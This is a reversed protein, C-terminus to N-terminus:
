ERGKGISTLWRIRASNSTTRRLRSTRSAISDSRTCVFDADQCNGGFKLRFQSGYLRVERKLVFNKTEMTIRDRFIGTKAPSDRTLLPQTIAQSGTDHAEQFGNLQSM